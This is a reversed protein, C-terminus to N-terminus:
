ADVNKPGMYDNYLRFSSIFEQPGSSVLIKRGDDFSTCPLPITESSDSLFQRWFHLLYLYDKNYTGAKEVTIRAGLERPTIRPGYPYTFYWDPEIQLYWQAEHRAFSLRVAHHKYETRNGAGKQIYVKTREELRGKLSPYSFKNTTPNKLVSPPFYFREKQAALGRTRALVNLTLNLLERFRSEEIEGVPVSHASGIDCHNALECKPHRLDSLTILTGQGVVFSYFEVLSPIIQSRSSANTRAAWAADPFERVPFWNSWVLERLNSECLIQEYDFGGAVVRALTPIADPSLLDREKDFRITCTAASRQLLHPESRVYEKIAKWYINRTDPHYFFLFVPFNLQVWHELYRYEVRIGIQDESESTIYSRGAKVQCKFFRGSRVIGSVIEIEGDIGSKDRTQRVFQWGQKNFFSEVAIISEDELNDQPLRKLPM